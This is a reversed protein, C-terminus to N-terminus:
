NIYGSYRTVGGVCRWLKKLFKGRLENARDNDMKYRTFKRTCYPHVCVFM